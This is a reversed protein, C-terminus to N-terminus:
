LSTALYVTSSTAKPHAYYDYYPRKVSFTGLFLLQLITPRDCNFPPSLFFFSLRAYAREGVLGGDM